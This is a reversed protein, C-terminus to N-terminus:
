NELKFLKIANETTVSAVVGPPEDRLKALFGATHVTHEPKCIKGRFPVPTLFPADTELLVKDLPINKVTDLQKQDKTFTIIGNLAM